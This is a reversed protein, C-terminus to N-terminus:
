VGLESLVKSKKLFRMISSRAVKVRKSKRLWFQLDAYKAGANRMLVLEARYKSLKSRCWTIRKRRIARAKRANSLEEQANFPKEM